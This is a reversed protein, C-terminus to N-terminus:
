GLQSAYQSVSNSMERACRVPEQVDGAGQGRDVAGDGGAGLRRARSVGVRGRGREVVAQGLTGQDGGGATRVDDRLQDRRSAVSAWLPM